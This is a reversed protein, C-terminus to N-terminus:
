KVFLNGLLPQSLKGDRTVVNKQIKKDKDDIVECAPFRGKCKIYVTRLFELRLVLGDVAELLTDGEPITGIVCDFLVLFISAVPTFFPLVLM